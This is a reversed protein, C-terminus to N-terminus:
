FLDSVIHTRTTFVLFYVLAYNSVSITLHEIFDL